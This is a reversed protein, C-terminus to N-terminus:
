PERFLPEAIGNRRSRLKDPLRAKEGGWRRDAHDLPGSQTVRMMAKKGLDCYVVNGQRDMTVGNPISGAPLTCLVSVKGDPNVKYMVGKRGGGYVNNEKDVVVGESKLVGRGFIEMSDVSYTAM